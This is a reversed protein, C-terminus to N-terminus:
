YGGKVRAQGAFYDGYFGRAAFVEPRIGDPLLKRYAIRYQGSRAEWTGEDGLGGPFLHAMLGFVYLTEADNHQEPAFYDHVERFVEALSSSPMRAEQLGTLFPPEVLLYWALFAVHLGLERERIGRRWERLLIDYAGALTPEGGRGIARNELALAAAPISLLVTTGCNRARRL